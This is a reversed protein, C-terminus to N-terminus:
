RWTTRWGRRYHEAGRGHTGRCQPNNRSRRQVIRSMQGRRHRSADLREVMGTGEVLVEQRAKVGEMEAVCESAMVGEMEERKAMEAVMEVEVMVAEVVTRLYRSLTLIRECPLGRFISRPVPAAFNRVCTRPKSLCAPRAIM